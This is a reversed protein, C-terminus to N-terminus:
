RLQYLLSILIISIAALFGVGIKHLNLRSFVLISKISGSLVKTMTFLIIVFIIDWELYRALVYVGIGIILFVLNIRMLLRHLNKIQYYGNLIMSALDPLISTSIIACFLAAPVWQDGLVLSIISDSFLIFILVAPVSIALLGVMLRNVLDRIEPIESDRIRRLFIPSISNGLLVLPYNLLSFAMTLQGLMGVNFNAGVFILPLQTVILNLYRGPLYYLPYHRYLSISRVGSRITALRQRAVRARHRFLYVILSFLRGVFEGILLGLKSGATLLGVILSIVRIVFNTITNQRAIFQFQNDFQSWKNLVNLGVMIISTGMIMIYLVSDVQSGPLHFVDILLSPLLGAFLIITILSLTISVASVRQLEKEDKCIPIAEALSLSSIVVLHGVIINLISFYGYAVPDYIRAFIPTFIITWLIGLSRSM